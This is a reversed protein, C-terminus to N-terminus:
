IILFSNLIAIVWGSDSHVVIVDDGETFVPRIEGPILAAAKEKALTLQLLVSRVVEPALCRSKDQMCASFFINNTHHLM